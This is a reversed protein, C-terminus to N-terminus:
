TKMVRWALPKFKTMKLHLIDDDDEDNEDKDAEAEDYDEDEDDDDEDDEDDEDDDDDDDVVINLQIENWNQYSCLNIKRLSKKKVNFFPWRVM